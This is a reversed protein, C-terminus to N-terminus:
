RGRLVSVVVRGHADRLEAHRLLRPLRGRTMFFTIDLRGEFHRVVLPVRKGSLTEATGSVVRRDFTWGFLPPSTMVTGSAKRSVCGARVRLFLYCVGDHAKWPAAMLLVRGTGPELVVAVNSRDAEKPLQPAADRTLFFGLAPAGALAAVVLAAALVLRPRPRTRAARRLVDEWDPREERLPVLEDLTGRM